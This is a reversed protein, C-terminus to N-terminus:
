QGPSRRRAINVAFQEGDTRRVFTRPGTLNCGAACSIALRMEGAPGSPTGPQHSWDECGEILPVEVAAQTRICWAKTSSSWLDQTDANVLGGYHECSSCPRSLPKTNLNSSQHSVTLITPHVWYGSRRRPLLRALRRPLPAIAGTRHAQPARLFCSFDHPSAHDVQKPARMSFAPRDDFVM